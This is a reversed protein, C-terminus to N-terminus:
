MLWVRVRYLSEAGAEVFYHAERVQVDDYYLSVEALEGLHSLNTGRRNSQLVDAVGGLLNLGDGLFGNETEVMVLEIGINGREKPDWETRDLARRAEHLLQIVRDHNRHGENFISNSGDKPPPVGAVMLNIENSAM